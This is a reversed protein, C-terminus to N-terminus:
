SSALSVSTLALATLLGRAPAHTHRAQGLTFGVAILSAGAGGTRVADAAARSADESRAIRATAAADVRGLRISVWAVFVVAAVDLGSLEAVSWSAGLAVAAGAAALGAASGAFVRRVALGSRDSGPSGRGRSTRPSEPGLRPPPGSLSV